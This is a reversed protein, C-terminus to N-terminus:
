KKETKERGASGLGFVSLVTGAIIFFDSINFVLRRLKEWKVNLSFYDTVYGKTLRDALNSAGGGLVFAGGLKTLKKGPMGLLRIFAALLGLWLVLTSGKVIEPHKGGMNCAAGYNHLKRLLIRDRGVERVAKESIHKEAWHKILSDALFVVAGISLWVM